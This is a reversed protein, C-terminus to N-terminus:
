QDWKELWKMVDSRDGETQQRPPEDDWDLLKEEESKTTNTSKVKRNSVQGAKTTNSGSTTVGSSEVRVPEPEVHKAGRITNAGVKARSQFHEQLAQDGEKVDNPAILWKIVKQVYPRLAFYALVFILLYIYDQRDLSGKQMYRQIPNLRDLRDPPPSYQVM